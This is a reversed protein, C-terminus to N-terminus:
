DNGVKTRCRPPATLMARAAERVMEAPHADAADRVAQLALPTGIRALAEVAERAAYVDQTTELLRILGAVARRDGMRGLVWAARIPTEPEPHDLVAILKETYDRGSWFAPIDLRCRPCSAVDAPFDSWCRPCFYRM